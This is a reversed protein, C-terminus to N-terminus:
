PRVACRLGHTTLAGAANAGPQLYLWQFFMDGIFAPSDPLPINIAANGSASSAGGFTLLLSPDVLVRCSPMGLFGLDLDGPASSMLLAVPTASPVSSLLVHFRDYGAYPPNAGIVGGGCASGYSTNVGTPDHILRRGFVTMASGATSYACLFAKTQSDFGAGPVLGAAPPQITFLTVNEVAGGTSGLRAAEVSGRVLSARNWTALWHARTSTDLTIAAGSILEGAAGTVVNRHSAVQFSAQDADIRHVWAAAGSPTMTQATNRFYILAYRGGFGDLRPWQLHSTTSSIVNRAGRVGGLGVYQIVLKWRDGGIGRDLEQWAVLWADASGRGMENVTAHERDYRTGVAGASSLVFQTGVTRALADVIV